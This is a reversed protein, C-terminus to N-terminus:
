QNNNQLNPVIDASAEEIPELGNMKRYENVSINGSDAHIKSVEARTKADAQLADIGTLDYDLMFGEGFTPALWSNYRQKFKELLPIVADNWMAKEAQQVNNFTSNAPDNFLRSSVKYINCIARLSLVGQEIMQLDTASMGLQLFDVNAGTFM